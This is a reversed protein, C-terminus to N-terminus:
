GSVLRQLRGIFAESPMSGGRVDEYQIHGFRFFRKGDLLLPLITKGEDEAEQIEREVWTSAKAAPTMVVVMAACSDVKEEIVEHWRDGYDITKDIWTPIGADGLHEVLHDVYAQDTRSYSIFVHRGASSAEVGAPVEDSAEMSAGQLGYVRARVAPGLGALPDVGALPDDSVRAVHHEPDHDHLFQRLVSAWEGRLSGDFGVSPLVETDTAIGFPHLVISPRGILGTAAEIVM